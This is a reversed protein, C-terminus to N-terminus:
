RQVLLLISQVLLLVFQVLLLVFLIVSILQSQFTGDSFFCPILICAVIQFGLTALCICIFHVAKIIKKLFQVPVKIVPFNIQNNRM